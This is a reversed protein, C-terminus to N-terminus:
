QPAAKASEHTKAKEALSLREFEKLEKARSDSDGRERYIEALLFHPQPDAPDAQAAILLESKAKDLDKLVQYCRGLLFHPRALGPQATSAVRLYDIADTYHQRGVAFEGLYLNVRPDNPDERRAELFEKEAEDIKKLNRLAAGLAYHLGPADPRKAM